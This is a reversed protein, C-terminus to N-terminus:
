ETGLRVWVWGGVFFFLRKKFPELYGLIFKLPMNKINRKLLFPDGGSGGMWGKISFEILRKKFVERIKKM